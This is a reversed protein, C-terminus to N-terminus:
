GRGRPSGEAWLTVEHRVMDIGLREAAAHIARELEHDAFPTIAGTTADVVHHHHELPDAIEFRAVGDPGVDRRLSGLRTLEDLVRYVSAQSVRQARLQDVVEAASVLCQAGAALHEVVRTRAAGLRLGADALRAHTQHLWRDRVGADVGSM